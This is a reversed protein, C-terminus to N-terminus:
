KLLILKKTDSFEGVQISYFYIGSAFGTADWEIRHRGASLIESVLTKIEEGRGSYLRLIVHNAHPLSFAITTIPNFPNPYSQELSFAIPIEEDMQQVSTSTRTSRFVGRDTGAFILGSPAIALSFISIDTLDIQRWNNGNDTSLFAGTPSNGVGM